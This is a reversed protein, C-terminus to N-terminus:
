NIALKKNVRFLLYIGGLLLPPVWLILHVIMAYAVSVANTNAMAELSLIVSYDFTGIYGPTSPILTALTGIPLALFAAEPHAMTPLAQAVFFFVFGEMMWVALSYGILRAMTHSKSLGELTDAVNTFALSFKAEHKSLLIALAKKILYLFPSLLKPVLLFVLLFICIFILSFSGLRIFPLSEFHFVVLAVGFFILVILFDLIREVFITALVVGAGTRLRANFGFCRVADGARFPLVANIAYSLLLPVSCHRWSLTPNQTALMAQWRAIRIVYELGYAMCALVLWSYNITSLVEVLHNYNIQKAVLWVFLCGIALSLGIRLVNSVRM